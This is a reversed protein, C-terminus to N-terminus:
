IRKILGDNFIKRRCYQQRNNKRKKQQWEKPWLVIVNIFNWKEPLTNGLIEKKAFKKKVIKSLQNKMIPCQLIPVVTQLAFEKTPKQM